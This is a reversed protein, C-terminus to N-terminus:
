TLNTPPRHNQVNPIYTPMKIRGKTAAARAALTMQAPAQAPALAKGSPAPSSKGALRTPTPLTRSFLFVELVGQSDLNKPKGDRGRPPDTIM